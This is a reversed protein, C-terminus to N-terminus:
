KLKIKRGLSLKDESDMKNLKCLKAVSTNYKRAISSLTDGRKVVHYKQNRKAKRKAEQKKRKEIARRKEKERLVQMRKYEYQAEKKAFLSDNVVEVISQVENLYHSTSFTAYNGVMLTGSNLSYNDFDVIIRPNLARGFYRIEFHLHSGRSHGTNGGLGILQGSKVPHFTTIKLSSLHGYLTELGNFHSIIVYYGYGRNWGAQRVIGDFAAFVPDGTELDIDIGAHMRGWRWGFNSTVKGKCPASFCCHVNDILDICLTERRSQSLSIIGIKSTDWLKTNEKEFIYEYFEFSDTETSDAEFDQSKVETFCCLLIFIALLIKEYIKNKVIKM